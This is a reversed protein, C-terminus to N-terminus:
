RIVSRSLQAAVAEKVASMNTDLLDDIPEGKQTFANKWRPKRGDFTGARRKQAKLFASTDILSVQSFSDRLENLRGLGGRVVLKLPRNVYQALNKLQAVYWDIRSAMGCGTAFEFAVWEIEDHHNVFEAWRQWDHNTRGNLHLACPVGAGQIEAWCIAIRKMAHLNDHRPVDNFLSFNPSTILSVNWDRFISPMDRRRASGWWNELAPDTATGTLILSASSRIKLSRDLAGRSAFRQEGGRAHFLYYLSLGVVEADAPRLRASTHFIIPVYPPVQPAQAAQVPRVGELRLGGVEMIRGVFGRPRSPCVKDCTTADSCNCFSQCDFVAAEVRLGGCEQFYACSSCGMSLTHGADQHWLQQTTLAALEIKNSKSM